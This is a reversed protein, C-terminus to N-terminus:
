ILTRTQVDLFGLLRNLTADMWGGGYKRRLSGGSAMRNFGRRYLHRAAWATLLYLFLGNGWVLALNYLADQWEGLAAAQLGRGIWHAPLFPSRLVSVEGLLQNVSEVSVLLTQIPPLLHEYLWWVVVFVLIGVPIWLLHKRRRPVFNVLLLCC